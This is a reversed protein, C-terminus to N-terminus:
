GLLLRWQFGTDEVFRKFEENTVTTADNYFPNVSTERVPGEGDSPFRIGQYTLM